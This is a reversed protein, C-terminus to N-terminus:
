KPAKVAVWGKEKPSINEMQLESLLLMWVNIFTKMVNM